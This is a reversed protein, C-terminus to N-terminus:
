AARTTASIVWRRLACAASSLFSASRACTISASVFRQLIFSISSTALSHGGEGRADTGSM